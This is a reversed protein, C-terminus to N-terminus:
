SVFNKEHLAGTSIQPEDANMIMCDDDVKDDEEEQEYDDDNHKNTKRANCGV